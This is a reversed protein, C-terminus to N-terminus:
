GGLYTKYQEDRMVIRWGENELVAEQTIRDQAEDTDATSISRVVEITAQNGEINVSPFSYRTYSFGKGQQDDRRNLSTFAQESVRDKTEQAFLEYAKEYEAMNYYEYQLALVEEPRPGQPDSERLDVVGVDLSTNITPEDTVALLEPEVDTPVDFIFQSVLMGRPPIEVLALEPSLRHPPTVQSSQDYVEVRGAARAHLQGIPTPSITQPSTNTISYNVVVFKGAQSLADQEDEMYLDTAYYYEDATFYDLVRLDFSGAAINEGIVGAIPMNGVVQQTPETPEPAPEAQEVGGRKEQREVPSSAQGCGFLVGFAALVLLVRVVM